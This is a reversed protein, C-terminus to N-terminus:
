DDVCPLSMNKLDSIRVDIHMCIITGSSTIGCFKTYLGLIKSSGAAEVKVPSSLLDRCVAGIYQVVCHLM